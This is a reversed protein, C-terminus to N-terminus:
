PTSLLYWDSDQADSMKQSMYIDCSDQLDQTLQCGKSM